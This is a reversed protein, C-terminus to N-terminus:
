SRYLELVMADIEEDSREKSIRILMEADPGVAYRPRPSESQLAGIAIEEVTAPETLNDDELAAETRWLMKRYKDGYLREERESLTSILTSLDQRSREIMPTKIGGPQLLIVNVGWEGAEQRLVDTLGELAFKSAVYPAMMPTAVRGSYSSTLILRGRSERLLPMAVQYIALNSFCNIEMAARMKDISVTEAPGFPAVAGCVVIGDLRDIRSLAERLQAAVVASDALDLPLVEGCGPHRGRFPAVKAPTSVTAIVDYGLDLLKLTVAEGVGGNAGVILIRKTM